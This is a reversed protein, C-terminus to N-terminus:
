NNIILDNNIMRSTYQQLIAKITTELSDAIITETDIINIMHKPDTENNYLSISSDGNFLLSFKGSTIQYLGNVYQLAIRKSNEDLISTGFAITPKDYNLYNLITPFIDTQQITADYAGKFLSDGPSFFLVPIAYRGSTNKYFKMHYNSLGLGAKEFDGKKTPIVSQAPHDAAIVFLTNDYWSM